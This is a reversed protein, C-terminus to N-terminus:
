MGMMGRHCCSGNITSKTKNVGYNLFEVLMFYSRVSFIVHRLVLWIFTHMHMMVLLLVLFHTHKSVANDGSEFVRLDAHM